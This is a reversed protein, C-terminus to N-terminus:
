EDLPYFELAQDLADEAIGPDAALWIVQDGSQFYYHMQGWGELEYVMRGGILEEGIPEYPSNGEAIKDRMEIVLQAADDESASGSVWIIIENDSGYSGRAGDTLNFDKGHMQTIEDVASLGLVQSTLAKGAVQEPLPATATNEGAPDEIPYVIAFIVLILGIVILGIATTRRNTKM